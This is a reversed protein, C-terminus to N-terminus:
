VLVEVTEAQKKFEEEWLPAHGGTTRVMCHLNAESTETHNQSKATEALLVSTM